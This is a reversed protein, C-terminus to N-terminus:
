NLSQLREKRSVIDHIRIGYKGSEVIVEGRAVLTNNVLINVPEHSLATLEIVSKEGVELLEAIRIRTRGLEVTLELPIDLLFELNEPLAEIAPEPARAPPKRAPTPPIDDISSRPAPKPAKAKEKPASAAAPKPPSPPAEDKVDAEISTMEQLLKEIEEASLTGGGSDDAPEAAAEAAAPEEVVDYAVEKSAAEPTDIIDTYKVGVELFIVQDQYQLAFREYRETDLAEIKFDVGNTISPTSLECDLGLDVYTSKLNGGIINSIEGIVDNVEEQDSVDDADMGLMAAAIQQSFRQSVHFSIIGMADGAFSVSGVVRSGELAAAPVADLPAVSMDLMTDFLDTVTKLTEAKLDLAAIKGSDIKRDSRVPKADAQADQLKLGVEVEIPHGEYMYSLRVTKQMNLPEITFQKGSTIAPPSLKCTLGEDNFFSKLNGGIINTVECVVDRVEEEDLEDAPTGLMSAAMDVAFDQGVLINCLGTLRGVFNVTGVTRGAPFVQPARGEDATLQMSLMTDFVEQTYEHLKETLKLKKLEEPEPGTPAAKPAAPPLPADEASPTEVAAPPETAPSPTAVVSETAADAEADSEDPAAEDPATQGPVTEGPAIEDSVAEGSVIEDPVAEDPAPEEPAASVDPVDSPTEAAAAADTDAPEADSSVGNAVDYNVDKTVPVPKEVVDSYKVGLELFILNDKYQFAFREYRESDMSEIKFDKGRTISPTSLKCELGLDTFTSKLNGGIINSIEGIVDFIEEQEEIDEADMGLMNAAMQRAFDENVQISVSGMADGAFSVSGALRTIELSVPPVTESLTVPMDLMTDFLDAVTKVVDGKLDLNNIKDHSINRAERPKAEAEAEQFKLGVEVYVRTDQYDFAHSEVRQVNLPEISFDKGSTLSPPSLVCPLGEDVFYSKLNGAVINTVECLVDRIEEDDEVEDPEMGLMAATMRIAFERGVQVSCIGSLSGAFNVAGVMRGAGKEPIDTSESPALTMSLMTDFVELVYEVIKEKLQLANLDPM